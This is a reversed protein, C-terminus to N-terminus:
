EASHLRSPGKPRQLPKAKDTSNFGYTQDRDGAVKAKATASAATEKTYELIGHVIDM